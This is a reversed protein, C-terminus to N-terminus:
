GNLKKVKQVLRLIAGLEQRVYSAATDDPNNALRSALHEARRELCACDRKDTESETYIRNGNKDRDHPM